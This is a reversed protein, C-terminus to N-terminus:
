YGWGGGGEGQHKPSLSEVWKRIAEFVRRAESEVYGVHCYANPQVRSILCVPIKRECLVNLVQRQVLSEVAERYDAEDTWFSKQQGLRVAAFELSLGDIETVNYLSEIRQRLTAGTAESLHQALRGLAGLRSLTQGIYLITAGELSLLIGYIYPARRALAADHVTTCLAHPM